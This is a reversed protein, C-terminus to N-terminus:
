PLFFLSYKQLFTITLIGIDPGGSRVIALNKYPELKSPLTVRTVSNSHCRDKGFLPESPSKWLEMIDNAINKQFVRAFPSKIPKM